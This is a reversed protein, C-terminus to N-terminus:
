NNGDTDKIYIGEGSEVIKPGTKAFEHANTSPHLISNADLQKLDKPM